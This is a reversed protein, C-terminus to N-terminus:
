VQEHVFIKVVTKLFEDIKISIKDKKNKQSKCFASYMLLSGDTNVVDLRTTKNNNNNNNSNNNNHSNNHKTSFM